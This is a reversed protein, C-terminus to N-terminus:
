SPCLAVLVFWMDGRWFGGESVPAAASPTPMPPSPPYMPGPLSRSLLVHMEIPSNCPVEFPRARPAPHPKVNKEM